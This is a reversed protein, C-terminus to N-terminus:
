TKKVPSVSCKIEGERPEHRKKLWGALDEQLSRLVTETSGPKALDEGTIQTVFTFLDKEEDHTLSM